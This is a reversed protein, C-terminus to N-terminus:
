CEHKCIESLGEKGVVKEHKEGPSMEQSMCVCRCPCISESVSLNVGGLSSKKLSKNILMGLVHTFLRQARSQERTIHASCLVESMQGTYKELLWKTRMM